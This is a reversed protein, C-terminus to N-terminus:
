PILLVKGTTRRGELAQQAEAAQALPFERDIRVALAGSAVFGLVQGARELLEARTATYHQITPRTVFLSGRQALTQLEFPEVPRVCSSALALSPSQHWRSRM